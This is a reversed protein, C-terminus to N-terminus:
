IRLPASTDVAQSPSGLTLLLWFGYRSLSKIQPVVPSLDLAVLDSLPVAGAAVLAESLPSKAPRLYPAREAVMNKCCDHNQNAPTCPMSQCCDMDDGPQKSAAFCDAADVLLLAALALLLITKLRAM